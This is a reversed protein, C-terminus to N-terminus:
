EGDGKKAKPERGTGNCCPCTYNPKEGRKYSDKDVWIKGSGRCISCRAMKAETIEM